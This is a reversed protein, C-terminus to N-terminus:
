HGRRGRGRGRGAAKIGEAYADFKTKCNADHSAHQKAVGCGYCQHLYQCSDGFKCSGNFNFSRCPEARSGPKPAIDSTGSAAATRNSRPRGTKRIAPSAPGSAPAAAATEM